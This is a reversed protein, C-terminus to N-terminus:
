VFNKVFSANSSFLTSDREPGVSVISVQCGIIESITSLYLRAEPPLHHWKRASSIDEQWGDLEI